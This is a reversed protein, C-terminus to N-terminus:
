LKTGRGQDVKFLGNQFPQFWPAQIWGPLLWHSGHGEGFIWSFADVLFSKMSFSATSNQLFFGQVKASPVAAPPKLPKSPVSRDDMDQTFPGIFREFFRKVWSTMSIISRPILIQNGKKTGSFKQSRHCMEQQLRENRATLCGGQSGLRQSPKCPPWLKVSRKWNKWRYSCIHCGDECSIIKKAWSSTKWKLVESLLM